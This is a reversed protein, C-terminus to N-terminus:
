RCGGLLDGAAGDEPLPRNSALTSEPCESELYLRRQLEKRRCPRQKPTTATVPWQVTRQVPCRL